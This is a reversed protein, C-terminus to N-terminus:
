AKFLKAIIKVPISRPMGKELLLLARNMIGPVIVPKNNFMDKLAKEAVQHPKMLMRDSFFGKNNTRAEVEPNTIVPGPCLVSVRISSDRLEERLARTFYFVYSKTATYVCKYPMPRFSAMSGVNLIYSQRHLRLEPIFLHTLSTLAVMNLQLMNVIFPLPSATFLGEHGIGANNVLVNVALNNARCFDKVKQPADNETLDIALTQVKISYTTKLTEAVKCLGSDPLAILILNYGREALEEALAKGIGSSSGTILAYTEHAIENM